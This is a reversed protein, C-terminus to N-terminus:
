SQPYMMELTAKVKIEWIEKALEEIRENRVFGTTPQDYSFAFRKIRRGLTKELEDRMDKKPGGVTWSPEHHISANTEFVFAAESYTAMVTAVVQRVDDTTYPSREPPFDGFTPPALTMLGPDSNAVEVEYVLEDRVKTLTRTQLTTVDFNTDLVETSGDELVVKVTLHPSAAAM